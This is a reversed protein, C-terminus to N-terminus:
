KQTAGKKKYKKQIEYLVRYFEKNEITLGEVSERVTGDNMIHIVM